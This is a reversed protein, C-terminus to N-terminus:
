YNSLYPAVSSFLPHLLQDLESDMEQEDTANCMAVLRPRLQQVRAVCQQLRDIEDQQRITLQQRVRDVEGARQAVLQDYADIEDMEIQQRLMEAQEYRKLRVLETEQRLKNDIGKSFRTVLGRSPAQPIEKKLQIAHQELSIHERQHKEQIAIERERVKRSITQLKYARNGDHTGRNLQEQSGYANRQAHRRYLVQVHAELSDKKESFFRIKDRFFAAAKYERREAQLRENTVMKEVEQQLEEIQQKAETIEPCDTNEEVAIKREARERRKIHAYRVMASFLRHQLGRATREMMAAAKQMKKQQRRAVAQASTGGTIVQFCWAPRSKKKDKTVDCKHSQAGGPSVPAGYAEALEHFDVVGDGDLDLRRMEQQAQLLTQAARQENAAARMQHTEANRSLSARANRQDSFEFSSTHPQETQHARQVRIHQRWASHMAHRQFGRVRRQYRDRICM